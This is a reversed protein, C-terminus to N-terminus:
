KREKPGLTGFAPCTGMAISDLDDFEEVGAAVLAKALALPVTGPEIMGWGKLKHAIAYVKFSSMHQDAVFFFFLM